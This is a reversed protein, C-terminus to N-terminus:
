FVAVSYMNNKGTFVGWAYFYVHGWCYKVVINLNVINTKGVKVPLRQFMFLRISIQIPIYENLIVTYVPLSVFQTYCPPLSLLLLWACFNVALCGTLRLTHFMYIVQLCHWSVTVKPFCLSPLPRSLPSRFLLSSRTINRWDATM